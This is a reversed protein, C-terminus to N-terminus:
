ESGASSYLPDARGQKWIVLDFPLDKPLLMFLLAAAPCTCNIKMEKM